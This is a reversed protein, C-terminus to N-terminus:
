NRDFHHNHGYGQQRQTNKGQHSQAAVRQELVDGVHDHKQYPPPLKM